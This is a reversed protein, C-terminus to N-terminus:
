ADAFLGRVAANPQDFVEVDGDRMATRLRTRVDEAAPACQERTGTFYAYGGAGGSKRVRIELAHLGHQVTLTQSLGFLSSASEAELVVLSAELKAPALSYVADLVNAGVSEILEHDVVSDKNAKAIETLDGAQGRLLILFRGGGIPEADIVKLSASAPLSNLIRFGAVVSAAELVLLDKEM